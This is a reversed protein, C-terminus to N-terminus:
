EQTHTIQSGVRWLTCTCRTELEPGEYKEVVYEMRMPVWTIVLEKSRAMRVMHIGM